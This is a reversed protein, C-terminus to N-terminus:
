WLGRTILIEGVHEIEAQYAKFFMEADERPMNQWVMLERGDDQRELKCTIFRSQVQEVSDFEVYDFLLPNQSTLFAQRDGLAKMCADIWRHHLGNVLEDAIVVSPNCALYYFFALLRKQGYSLRDHHITTGDHRTIEFECGSMRLAVEAKSRDVRREQYMLRPLVKAVGLTAALTSSVFPDTEIAHQANAGLADGVALDTVSRPLYTSRAYLVPPDSKILLHVQLLSAPPTSAGRLETARGTAAAFGDLSEDFRFVNVLDRLDLIPRDKARISHWGEPFSYFDDTRNQPEGSIHQSYQWWESRGPPSLLADDSELNDRQADFELKLTSGDHVLEAELELEDEQIESFDARAIASLLSLLTTKGSANQGLILNIGDDFHLETGPKINRYKLIKLRKLKVM